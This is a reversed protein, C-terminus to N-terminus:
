QQEEKDLQKRLKEVGYRFRSKVTPVSAGVVDAIERFRLEGYVRLRLVEAERGPLADLLRGIRRQQEAAAALAFADAAQTPAESAACEDLSPGDHRRRRLLDTCRNTVMRFLYPVANTVRRHLRREAYAQVLVDQVIDEADSRRALRCFAFHVLRHQWAEVLREFEPLTKPWPWVDDDTTASLDPSARGIRMAYSWEM